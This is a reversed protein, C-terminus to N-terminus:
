RLRLDRLKECGKIRRLRAMIQRKEFYLEQRLTPQPTRIVLIRENIIEGPDCRHAYRTGVIEEWNEQLIKITSRTPSLHRAMGRQIADGIQTFEGKSDREYSTTRDEPLERLNRIM